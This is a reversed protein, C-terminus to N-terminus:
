CLPRELPVGPASAAGAEERSHRAPPHPARLPPEPPGSRTRSVWSCGSAASCSVACARPWPASGLPASRLGGAVRGASTQAASHRPRSLSRAPPPGGPGSSSAGRNAYARHPRPVATLAASPPASRGAGAAPAGPTLQVLWSVRGVRTAGVTRSSRRGQRPLAAGFSGSPSRPASPGEGPAARQPEPLGASGGVGRREGFTRRVIPVKFVLCPRRSPAGRDWRLVM